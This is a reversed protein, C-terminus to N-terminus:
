NPSPAAALLSPRVCPSALYLTALCCAVVAAPPANKRQFNTVKQPGFSPSRCSVSLCLSLFLRHCLTWPPRGCAGLLLLLRPPLLLLLLPLLLSLLLLLLLCAPVVVAAAFFSFFSVFWSFVVVVVM